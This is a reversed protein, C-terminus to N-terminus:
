LHGPGTVDPLRLLMFSSTDALWSPSCAGRAGNRVPNRWASRSREVHRQRRKTRGAALREAVADAQARGAPRFQRQDFLGVARPEANGESVIRAGADERHFGDGSRRGIVPRAGGHAVVLDRALQHDAEFVAVPEIQRGHHAAPHRADPALQELVGVRQQRHGQVPASKPRPTEVLGGREGGRDRIDAAHRHQMVDEFAHAGRRLLDAQGFGLAGIVHLASEPYRGLLLGFDGALPQHQDVVHQRGAGVASM